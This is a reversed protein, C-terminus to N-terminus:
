KEKGFGSVNVLYVENVGNEWKDTHNTEHKEDYRLSEERTYVAISTVMMNTIEKTKKSVKRELEKVKATSLKGVRKGEVKVYAELGYNGYRLEISAESKLKVNNKIYDKSKLGGYNGSKANWSIHLNDLSGDIPIGLSENNVGKFEVGEKLAKERKWSYTILMRKARTFAVYYLRREEEIFDKTVEETLEEQIGYPLPAFSPPIIVADYEVGKVKHITTLIIEQSEAQGSTKKIHKNFIKTLQGDEKDALEAIFDYLDQYSANEEKQHDFELVLAHFLHFSDEDWHKYKEILLEKYAELKVVYNPDLRKEQQQKIIKFFEYFARSSKPSSNNGQISIKPLPLDSKQLAKVLENYARFVEENSRFMLAISQYKDKGGVQEQMLSLTREDWKIYDKGNSCDIKETYSESSDAKLVAKMEPMKYRSDNCALFKESQEVIRPYSRYNNSLYYEKPVYVKAFDKYYPLSDMQGGENFRQYGYISQNPDGIVCIRVSKANAVVKLLELRETTIDQFEDVFVYNIGGLAQAVLGPKDQALKLFTPVWEELHDTKLQEKLAFKCFGHFTFVKLRHILKGYGLEKFLKGLREKLEAVVARNYALILINKPDIKDKQILRAVRLTLTHTKGSGPGAIVQLNDSLPAQYVLVQQDSLKEEAKQLAEQRFAKLNEHDEGLYEELLHILESVNACEFYAKIFADYRRDDILSLCELALLRLEKMQNSEQFEEFCKADLADKENENIESLEDIFLEIGMPVLSGGGKLYGFAKAFFVLQGFYEEGQQDFGLHNSLGVINFRFSEKSYYENSVYHILKVLDKRFENLYSLGLKNDKNANYILQQAGAKEEEDTNMVSKFSYNPCNHVMKFAFKFRSQIDKKEKNVEKTYKEAGLEKNDLWYFDSDSISSLINQIETELYNNDLVIRDEPKSANLLQYAFEFVKELCLFSPSRSSLFDLDSQKNFFIESEVEKKRRKTPELIADRLLTCIGYKQAKYLYSFVENSKVNMVKSLEYQQIMLKNQFCETTHKKEGLFNYLVNLKKAIEEKETSPIHVNTTSLQLPLYTPTYLGLRIRCLKELWHLAVRSVEEGDKDQIDLPLPFAKEKEVKLERFRQVYDFIAKRTAKIKEWTIQYKHEKDKIKKFSDTTHLCYAQIPHNDSFGAQNLYSKNRGARGVEQLFDEFTSSPSLHYIYHINPIDMGMGFAKTALLIVIEGNKYAEYREEREISDLGAHYFSIQEAYPRKAIKLEEKLQETAEEAQNRTQVFILVRSCEPNFNQENLNNSIFAKIEDENGKRVFNIAIHDRIPNYVKHDPLREM